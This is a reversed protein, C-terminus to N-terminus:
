DPRSCSPKVSHGSVYDKFDKMCQLADGTKYFVWSTQGKDCSSKAQLMHM